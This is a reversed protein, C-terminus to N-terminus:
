RWPKNQTLNSNKNRESEPIQFIYCQEYHLSPSNVWYENELAGFIDYWKYGTNGVGGYVHELRRWRRLDWIRHGEALLEVRRIGIHLTRYPETLNPLTRFVSFRDLDYLLATLHQTSLM